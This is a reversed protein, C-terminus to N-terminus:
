VVLTRARAAAVLTTETETGDLMARALVHLAHRAIRPPGGGLVPPSVNARVYPLLALLAARRRRSRPAGLAALLLMAHSRKWFLRAYLADRHGPHRAILAPITDRSRAERLAAALTRPLVAHWVLADDVYRVEAGAAQARLGLDTDEGLRAFHEDFGGLRELLTLPYAINCSEHWPSPGVIRQTRALGHLLHVEDPDPETRGQLVSGAAGAAAVLREAWAPHPRCDDDTFAILRGRAARWGANRLAAINRRVGTALVRVRLGEPAPPPEWLGDQVIIVEFREHPLTQVSLAELAFALRVRRSAPIVVTLEPRDM